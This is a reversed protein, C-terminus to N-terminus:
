FTKLGLEHSDLYAAEGARREIDDDDLEHWDTNQSSWWSADAETHEHEDDDVHVTHSSGRLIPM